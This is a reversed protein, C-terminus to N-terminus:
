FIDLVYKEDLKKFADAMATSKEELKAILGNKHGQMKEV